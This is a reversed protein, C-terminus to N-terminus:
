LNDVRVGGFNTIAMFFDPANRGIVPLHTFKITHAIYTESPDYGLQTAPNLLEM